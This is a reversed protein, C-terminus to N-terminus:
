RTVEAVPKVLGYVLTRVIGTPSTIQCDWSATAALAAADTALLHLHIVNAAITCGFEALVTPDPPTTRIQAKPTYGTLDIPDGTGPDTVIVDLFIDDGQYVSLDVALPTEDITARAM